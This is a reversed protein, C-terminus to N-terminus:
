NYTQSSQTTPNELEVPEYRVGVGPAPVRVAPNRKEQGNNEAGARQQQKQTVDILFLFNVDSLLLAALIVARIPIIAQSLSTSILLV